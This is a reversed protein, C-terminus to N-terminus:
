YGMKKHADRLNTVRMIQHGRKVEGTVASRYLFPVVIAMHGARILCQYGHSEIHRQVTAQDVM